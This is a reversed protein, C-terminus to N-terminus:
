PLKFRSVANQLDTALSDLAIVNDNAARTAAVSEEVMVAIREVNAAINASALSQESTANAVDHIHELAESSATNIRKLADAAAGAKSVSRGVQPTIDEMSQVVSGTDQQIRDLMTDIEATAKTTREALNRVEDAVVAFGRGHEGARAAEISANLALLNTQGAIEKIVNAISGIDHTRKALQGILTSSSAIQNAVGEIEQSVDNILHEGETAATASSVASERTERANNSIQDVSVAMQEIAAATSATAESSQVSAHNIQTMQASLQSSAASLSVSGQKITAIMQRLNAQMQVMSGLLSDPRVKARPVRSLDGNAIERVVMVAYAPEGGLQRSISRAMSFAIGGIVLLAILGGIGFGFAYRWFETEVDQTNLSTGLLWNWEPVQQIGVLQPVMAGTASNGSMVNVYTFKGGTQKVADIFMQGTTRGDPQKSGPDFTGERKPDLHVLVMSDSMRRVFMFNRGDRLARIADTARSQADAQNFEGSKERARYADILNGAMKVSQEVSDRREELMATRLSFLAAGAFAVLGLAAAIVMIALRTSIKM